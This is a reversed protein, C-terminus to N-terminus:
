QQDRGYRWAETRGVALKLGRMCKDHSQQMDRDDQTIRPWPEEEYLSSPYPQEQIFDLGKDLNFLGVNGFLEAIPRAVSLRRQMAEPNISWNLNSMPGYPTCVPAMVAVLVTATSFYRLVRQQNSPETRDVGVALDFHPGHRM